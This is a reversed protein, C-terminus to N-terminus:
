FDFFVFKYRHLEHSNQVYHNQEVYINLFLKKLNTTESILMPDYGVTNMSLDFYLDSYKTLFYKKEM